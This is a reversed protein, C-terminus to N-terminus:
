FIYASGLSTGIFRFRLIYLFSRIIGRVSNLLARIKHIIKAHVNIPQENLVRFTFSDDTQHANEIVLSSICWAFKALNASKLVKKQAGIIVQIRFVEIHCARRDVWSKHSIHM